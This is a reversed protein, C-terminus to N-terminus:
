HQGNEKGEKLWTKFEEITINGNQAENIKKKALDTWEKLEDQAKKKRLPNSRHKRVTAAYKAQYTKNYEKLVPDSKVKEQYAKMAGIDKCTKGTKENVRDCYETDIRNSPFFYEDCNSCRKILINNKVMLFFEEYLLPFISKVKWMEVITYKGSKKKIDYIKANSNHAGDGILNNIKAIDFEYLLEIPTKVIPLNNIVLCAETAQKFINQAQKIPRFFREIDLVTKTKAVSKRLSSGNIYVGIKLNDEFVEFILKIVDDYVSFHPHANHLLKILQEMAQTYNYPTIDKLVEEVQEKLENLDLYVFDIFVKGIPVKETGKYYSYKESIYHDM